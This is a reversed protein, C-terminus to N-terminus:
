SVCLINTLPISCSIKSPNGMVKLNSLIATSSWAVCNKLGAKERFENLGYRTIEQPVEHM